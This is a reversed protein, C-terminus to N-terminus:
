PQGTGWGELEGSDPNFSLVVAVRQSSASMRQAQEECAASSHGRLLKVTANQGEFVLDNSHSKARRRLMKALEKREPYGLDLLPNTVRTFGWTGLAELRSILASMEKPMWQVPRAMPKSRQGMKFLFYDDFDTTYTTFTLFQFDAPRMLTQPGEKLYIGLWNVEDQCRVGKSEFLSRRWGVYHLFQAPSLLIESVIMLDPLYIAWAQEGEPFLGLEQMEALESTFIGLDDLTVSLTVIESSAAKDIPVRTGDKLSFVPSSESRIFNAARSAQSSPDRVLDKLDSVISKTAGRRGAPSAIGAKGEILFLYRDFMLLGDLECHKGGFDYFLKQFSTCRPMTKSLYEMAKEVLVESRAHEYSDWPAGSERQLMAEINPKVTWQALHPTALMFKDDYTIFPRAQFEHTARPWPDREAPQGFTVSFSQLFSMAVRASVGAEDALDDVGFSWNGALDFFAWETLMWNLMARRKKGSQAALNHLLEANEGSLGGCRRVQKVQHRIKEGERKAMTIRNRLRSSMLRESADICRLINPITLQRDELWASVAPTSFLAVLIERWHDHYAPSRVAIGHAIASCRLEQLKSPVSGATESIHETQYHLLAANFLEELLAQAKEVDEGPPEPTSYQYEADRVELLAMYEIFHPRLPSDYERYTDPNHLVNRVILHALLELSSHRHILDQLEKRIETARALLEPRHEIVSRILRQHDEPSRSGNLHIYRGFREMKFLPTEFVEDPVANQPIRHDGQSSAGV